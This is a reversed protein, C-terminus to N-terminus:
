IIKTQFAIKNKVMPTSTATKLWKSARRRGIKEVVPIKPSYQAAELRIKAEVPEDM